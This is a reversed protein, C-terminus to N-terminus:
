NQDVTLSFTVTTVPDTGNVTGTQIVNFEGNDNSIKYKLEDRIYKLLISKIETNMLTILM